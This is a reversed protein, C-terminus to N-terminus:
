MMRSAIDLKSICGIYNSIVIFSQIHLTTRKEQNRRGMQVNQYEFSTKAQVQDALGQLQESRHKTKEYDTQRCFDRRYSAASWSM